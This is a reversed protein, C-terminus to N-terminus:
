TWRCQRKTAFRIKGIPLDMDDYVVVIDSLDIQFYDMLPRIARGSENMYTVPKALIVKEGNIFTTAVDSDFMAENPQIGLRHCLEDVTMFGVNHKTTMYKRGPNGLGVILKM